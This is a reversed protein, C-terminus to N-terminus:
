SLDVTSCAWFLRPVAFASRAVPSARSRCDTAWSRDLTRVAVFDYWDVTADLAEFAAGLWDSIACFVEVTVESRTWTSCACAASRPVANVAGAAPVMAEMLLLM